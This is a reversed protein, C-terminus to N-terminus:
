EPIPFSVDDIEEPIQAELDTITQVLTDIVNGIAGVAESMQETTYHGEEGVIENIATAIDSIYQVTYIKMEGQPIDALPYEDNDGYDYDPQEETGSNYVEFEISLRGIMLTIVDRNLLFKLDYFYRGLELAATKSPPIRVTYTLVDHEEDYSVFDITNDSSVMFVADTSEVAEKCTFYIKEPRQGELGQVQFCFSMTDGRVMSLDRKIANYFYGENTWM